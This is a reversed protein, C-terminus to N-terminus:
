CSAQYDPNKYVSLRWAGGCIQDSNGTCKMNCDSDPKPVRTKFYNSCWCGTTAELAYMSYSTCFSKCKEITMQNSRYHNGTFSRCSQDQFCGVYEGNSGQVLDDPNKYEPNAFINIAWAGGCIQDSDGSCKEECDSPDKLVDRTIYNGCHCWNSAEVGYLKYNGKTCFKQCYSPTMQDSKTFQGDLTRTPSDLYCLTSSRKEVEAIQFYGFTLYFICHEIILIGDNYDTTNSLM